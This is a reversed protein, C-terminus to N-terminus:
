QGSRGMIPSAEGHRMRWAEKGARLWALDNLRVIRIARLHAYYARLQEESLAELYHLSLHLNLYRVADICDNRSVRGEEGDQREAVRLPSKEQEGKM